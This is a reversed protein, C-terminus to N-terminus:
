AISAMVDPKNSLRHYPYLCPTTPKVETTTKEHSPEGQSIHDSLVESATSLYM